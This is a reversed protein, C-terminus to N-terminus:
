ILFIQHYKSPFADYKPLGLCRNKTSIKIVLGATNKHNDFDKLQICVENIAYKSFVILNFPFISETFESIRKNTDGELNQFISYETM